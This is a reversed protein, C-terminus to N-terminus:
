LYFFYCFTGSVHTSYLVDFVLLLPTKCNYTYGGEQLIFDVLFLM